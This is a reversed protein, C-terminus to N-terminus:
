HGAFPAVRASHMEGGSFPLRSLGSMVGSCKRPQSTYLDPVFPCGLVPVLEVTADPVVMCACPSVM